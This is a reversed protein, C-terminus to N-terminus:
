NFEPLSKARRMSAKCILLPWTRRLASVVVFPPSFKSLPKQSRVRKTSVAFPLDRGLNVVGLRDPAIVIRVEKISIHADGKALATM